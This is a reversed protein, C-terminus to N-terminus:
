YGCTATQRSGNDAGANNEPPDAHLRAPASGWSQQIQRSHRVSTAAPFKWQANVHGQSQSKQERRGQRFAGITSAGGTSLSHHFLLRVGREGATFGDMKLGTVPGLLRM